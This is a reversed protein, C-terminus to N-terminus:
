ARRKSCSPRGHQWTPSSVFPVRVVSCCRAVSNPAAAAAPDASGARVQQMLRGHLQHFGDLDGRNIVELLSALWAHETGSLTRLVDHGLQRRAGAPVQLVGRTLAM